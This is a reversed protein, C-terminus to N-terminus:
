TIKKVQLILLQILEKHQDIADYLNTTKEGRQTSLKKVTETWVRIGIGHKNGGVNWASKAQIMLHFLRHLERGRFIYTSINSIILHLMVLRVGTLPSIKNTSSNEVPNNTVTSLGTLNILMGGVSNSVM